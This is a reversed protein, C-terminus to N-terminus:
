CYKALLMGGWFAAAAVAGGGEDVAAYADRAGCGDADGFDHVLQAEGERAGVAEHAGAPQVDDDLRM